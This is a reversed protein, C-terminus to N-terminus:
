GHSLCVSPRVSNRHSLRASLLLQKRAYFALWFCCSLLSEDVDKILVTWSEVNRWQCSRCFIDLFVIIGGCVFFCTNQQLTMLRWVIIITVFFTVLFITRSICWMLSYVVHQTQPLTQSSLKSDHWFLHALTMWTVHLTCLTLMHTHSATGRGGSFKVIKTFFQFRHTQFKPYLKLM